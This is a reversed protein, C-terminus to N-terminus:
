NVTLTLTTTAMQNGSTATVTVTQTGTPTGHDHPPHPPPSGGGCGILSGASIMVLVMGLHALWRRRKSGLLLLGFGPLLWGWALRVEGPWAVASMSPATTTITLTVPNTTATTPSCSAEAPLGTCSLTILSNTFNAFTLTTSGSSGPSAISITSPSPSVTAQGPPAPVVVISFSGTAMEPPNASDTVKLSLNVTGSTGPTGSLIGKSADLNLWAPLSTGSATAWTFPGLGNSPTLQTSYMMGVTAQPLTGGQLTLPQVVTVSLTATQSRPTSESDTVQVTFNFTGITSPTGSILGSPSVNLWSPLGSASWTYPGTGGTAQLQVSTYPQGLLGTPVSSTLIGLGANNVTLSAMASENGGCTLAYTYTGSVAPSINISGGWGGSVAAGQQLGTWSSAGPAGSQAFAYCQQASLSYANSATWTLTTLTGVQVTGPSFSIQVPGRATSGSSPGALFFVEGPNSSTNSGATVGYFNGDSGEVVATATSGLNADIPLSSISSGSAPAGFLFNGSSGYLQGDSALTVGTLSGGGDSASGFLYLSNISPAQLAGGSAPVMQFLMGPENPSSSGCTTSIQYVTDTPSVLCIPPTTGYINGDAGEALTVPDSTFAWNTGGSPFGHQPQRVIAYPRIRSMRLSNRTSPAILPAVPWTQQGFYSEAEASTAPNIVFSGGCGYFTPTSPSVVMCSSNGELQATGYLNGDSGQIVANPYALTYTPPTSPPQNENYVFQYIPNVQASGSQPVVVNFVAGEQQSTCETLSGNCGLATGYFVTSISGPTAGAGPVLPNPYAGLTAQAIASAFSFIPTITQGQPTVVPPVRFIVGCGVDKLNTTNAPDPGLCAAQGISGGGFTTTGYLSGDGGQVLGTPSGGDTLGTFNYLITISGGNSPDFRFVTGCGTANGSPDVCCGIATGSGDQCAYAATSGGFATTGYFLGDKGQILSNPGIVSGDTPLPCATVNGTATCTLTQARALQFPACVVLGLFVVLVRGPM